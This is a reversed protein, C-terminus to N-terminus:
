LDRERKPPRGRSARIVASISNVQERFLAADNPSSLGLQAEENLEEVGRQTCVPGRALSARSPRARRHCKVADCRRCRRCHPPLSSLSLLSTVPVARLGRALDHALATCVLVFLLQTLATHVYYSTYFTYEPHVRNRCALHLPFGLVNYPVASSLRSGGGKAGRGKLTCLRAGKGM